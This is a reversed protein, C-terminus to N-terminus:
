VCLVFTPDISEAISEEVWLNRNQFDSSAYKELLKSQRESENEGSLYFFGIKSQLNEIDPIKKDTKMDDIYKWGYRAPVNEPTLNQINIKELPDTQSGNEYVEIHINNKGSHEMYDRSTGINDGVNIRAFLPLDNPVIGIYMSMISGPHKIIVLGPSNSTPQQKMLLYGQGMSKVPIGPTVLIDLGTHHENM